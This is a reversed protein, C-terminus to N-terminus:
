NWRQNGDQFAAISGVIIASAGVIIGSALPSHEDFFDSAAINVFAGAAATFIGGPIAMMGGFALSETSSIFNKKAHYIASCVFTTPTGIGGAIAAALAYGPYADIVEYIGYGVGGLVGAIGGAIAGYKVLKGLAGSDYVGSVFDTAKKTYKSFLGQTPEGEYKQLKKKLSTVEEELAGVREIRHRFYELHEKGQELLSGADPSVSSASELEAMKQKLRGELSEDTM